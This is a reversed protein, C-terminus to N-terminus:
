KLNFSLIERLVPNVFSKGSCPITVTKFKIKSTTKLACPNDLADAQLFSLMAQPKSTTQINNVVSAHCRTNYVCAPLSAPFKTMLM